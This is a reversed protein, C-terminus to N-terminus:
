RRRGGALHAGFWTTTITTTMASAPGSGGLLAASVANETVTRGSVALGGPPVTDPEAEASATTSKSTPYGLLNQYLRPATGLTTAPAYPDFTQVAPVNTDAGTALPITLFGTPSVSSARELSSTGAASYVGGGTNLPWYTAREAVIGVGNTVAVVTRFSTNVLGTIGKTSVSVRGVAPVTVPSPIVASDTRTFTLTANAPITLHPNTLLIWTESQAHASHPCAPQCGGIDPSVSDVHASGHFSGAPM